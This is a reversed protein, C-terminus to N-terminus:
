IYVAFVYIEDYTISFIIEMNKDIEVCWIINVIHAKYFKTLDVFGNSTQFVYVSFKESFTKM